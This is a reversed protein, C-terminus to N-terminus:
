SRKRNRYALLSLAIWIVPLSIVMFLFPFDGEGGYTHMGSFFMNVGFYTMLLAGFAFCAWVNLWYSWHSRMVLRLNLILTYSLILILTWSEKPDWGWYRGWTENAWIAGLICGIAILLLGTWLAQETIK